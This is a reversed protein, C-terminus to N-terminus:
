KVCGDSLLDCIVDFLHVPEVAERELMDALQQASKRCPSINKVEASEAGCVCRLGYGTYPENEGDNEKTEIISYRIKM